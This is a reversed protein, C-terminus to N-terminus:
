KSDRFSLKNRVAWNQIAESGPYEAHSELQQVQKYGLWSQWEGRERDIDRWSDGTKKMADLVLGDLESVIPNDTEALNNQEYPDNELDFCVWPGDELRAYNYKATRIGRWGPWAVFGHHMTMYAYEQQPANSDNGLIRSSLDTGDLRMPIDIGALGCLTPFIDPTGFPTELITNAEIVGPWRILFPVQTSERHPWRKGRYGQSNLMEGHDSTFVVITNDAQGSEELAKMLRNWQTDLWAVLGYYHAYQRQYRNRMEADMVTVNPHFKLDRGEYKELYAEPSVLPPHPPHWSLFMCWPEEHEQGQIFEIARNTEIQPKDSGEGVVIESSSVAYNRNPSAHNSVLPVFWEDDFGLRMPHGSDLQIDGLHWKGAYGCRYGANKFTQGIHAHENLNPYVKNTTIGTHHGYLSTMLMSRYPTCLPTSSVANKLRMGQRAFEDFHPTQLDEDGYYCSMASARQQDSFVFLVNPRNAM